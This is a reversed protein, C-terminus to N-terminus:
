DAFAQLVPPIKLATNEKAPEQTSQESQIVAWCLEQCPFARCPLSVQLPASLVCCIQLKPVLSSHPYKLGM